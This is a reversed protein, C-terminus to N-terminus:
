FIWSLLRSILGPRQGTNVTGKGLHTIEVNAVDYSFITNEPSIDLARIEGRVMTKETENNIMVARTGEIILVGNDKIEIISATMKARLAGQRSTSATGNFKSRNSGNLGFIPLRSLAGEGGGEVTLEGAKDTSTRASSSATSEELILITVLDGVAHARIDAFLSAASPQFSSQAEAAEPGFILSALMMYRFLQSHRDLERHLRDEATDIAAIM